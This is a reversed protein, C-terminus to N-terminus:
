CSLIGVLRRRSDTPCGMRVVVVAETRVTQLVKRNLSNGTLGRVADTPSRGVSRRRHSCGPIQELSSRCCRDVTGATGELGGVVELPSSDLDGPAMRDDAAAATYGADTHRAKEVGTRGVPAIRLDEPLNDVVESYGLSGM